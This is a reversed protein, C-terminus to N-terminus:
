HFWEPHQTIIALGDLLTLFIILALQISIYTIDTM